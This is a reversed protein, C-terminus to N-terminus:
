ETLGYKKLTRYGVEKGTCTCSACWQSYPMYEENIYGMANKIETVSVWVWSNTEEAYYGYRKGISGINIGFAENIEDIMENIKNM